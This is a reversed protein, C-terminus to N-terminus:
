ILVVYRGARRGEDAIWELIAIDTDDFGAPLAPRPSVKPGMMKLVITQMKQVVIQSRAIVAALTEFDPYQMEGRPM